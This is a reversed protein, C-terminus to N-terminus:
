SGGSSVAFPLRELRDLCGTDLGETTGAAVFDAMIGQACRPFPSHATGEMVLHLSNPLAAAVEDGWRPPTTPDLAGSLLLVPADASVPEHFDAPSEGRDWEECAAVLTNSATMGLFTGETDRAIDRERLADYDEACFVSLGMGFYLSRAVALTATVAPRFAGFDGDFARQVVMPLFRQSRADMLLRRVGGAFVDRTIEISVTDGIGGDYVPVTVPDSELRLLVSNLKRGLQEYAGGCRDDAECDDVLRQFSAQADRPNDAALNGSPALVGRLTATRVREPHRRLYELAARTGYSGGYLNLQEYGLWARVEEIDAAAETTTYFRLDAHWELEARCARAAEPPFVWGLLMLAQDQPTDFECPLGNSRGTGRQDIMVIDRERLIRAFRNANGAAGDTAAQGPGGALTLLPEPAAQSSRAALIVINLSIMRSGAAGRDEPVHYRACRVLEDIGRVECTVPELNNDADTPVRSGEFPEVRDLMAWSGSFRDGDLEGFFVVSDAGPLSATVTLSTGVLEVQTIPMAPRISTYMLGKVDEDLATIHITGTFPDGEVTSSQFDYRGLPPAPGEQAAL